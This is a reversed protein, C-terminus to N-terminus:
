HNCNQQIQYQCLDITKPIKKKIAPIINSYIDSYRSFNILKPLTSNKDKLKRFSTSVNRSVYNM